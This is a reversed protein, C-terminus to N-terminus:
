SSGVMKLVTVIADGSVNVKATVESCTKEATSGGFLYMWVSDLDLKPDSPMDKVPQGLAIAFLLFYTEAMEIHNPMLWNLLQFGPVDFIDQRIGQRTVRSASTSTQGLAQVMKDQLVIESKILWHGNCNGLRFKELLNPLSLLTTLIRLGHTMTTRHLHGQLFLLVWDFGVVQIVDECYKTHVKKGAYLLSFFVKLSRNRLVVDKGRGEDLAETGDENLNLENESDLSSNLTASTFLAFCLM